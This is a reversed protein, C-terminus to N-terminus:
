QAQIAAAAAEIQEPTPAVYAFNRDRVHALFAAEPPLDHEVLYYAVSASWVWEGDTLYAIPVQQGRSEDLRDVSLGAARLIVKGQRLYALFDSRERGAPLAPRDVVFPTGDRMGDFLKAIKVDGVVEPM